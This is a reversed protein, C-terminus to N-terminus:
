TSSKRARRGNVNYTSGIAGDVGSITAQVLMEDFGSLILKDPFAKRIRELLFFNPATYKVGVIKTILYSASNNLLFIVGTLDPIAYIIMNNQTAEIIDFYYDRIEEFTFPYYFPTVASLADYGLETAYKGLEIAENLDLSGVQAILKM